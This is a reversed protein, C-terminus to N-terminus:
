DQFARTPIGPVSSLSQSVSSPRSWNVDVEHKMEEHKLSVRNIDREADRTFEIKALAPLNSDASIVDELAQEFRRWPARHGNQLHRPASTETHATACVSEKTGIVLTGEIERPIESNCSRHM